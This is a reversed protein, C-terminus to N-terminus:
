RFEGRHPALVHVSAPSDARTDQWYIPPPLPRERHPLLDFIWLLGAISGIGILIMIIATVAAGIIDPWIACACAIGCIMAVGATLKNAEDNM